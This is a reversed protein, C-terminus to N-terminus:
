SIRTLIVCYKIHSFRWDEDVTSIKEKNEKKTDFCRVQTTEPKFPKEENNELKGFTEFCESDYILSMNQIKLTRLSACHKLWMLSDGKQNEGYRQFVFIDRMLTRFRNVIDTDREESYNFACREIRCKKKVFADALANFQMSCMGVGYLLHKM